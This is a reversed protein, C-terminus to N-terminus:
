NKSNDVHIITYFGKREAVSVKYKLQRNNIEGKERALRNKDTRIKRLYDINLGLSTPLHIKNGAKIKDFLSLISDTDKLEKIVKEM